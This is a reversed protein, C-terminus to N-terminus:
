GSPEGSKRLEQAVLKERIRALDGNVTMANLVAEVRVALDRHREHLYHYVYIREIPPLLPRVRAELHLRRVEVQGSFLDTVLLDFRDRDLMRILETLGTARQVKAMDRTGTESSGVGRVIGVDYDKISEWGKVEFTLGTTFVAPEIYNIPPSLQVLTPYDRSIVAIRQIEGDAQGSSSLALARKAEVDVFEVSIGLRAYVEKLIEGGVFQDPVSALRTLVITSQAAAPGTLVASMWSAVFGWGLFFRRVGSRRLVTLFM